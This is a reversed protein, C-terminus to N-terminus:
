SLNGTVSVSVGVALTSNGIHRMRLNKSQQIVSCYGSLIWETVPLAYLSWLFGGCQPNVKVKKSHPLLSFFFDIASISCIFWDAINLTNKRRPYSNWAHVVLTVSSMFSGLYHPFGSLLKVRLHKACERSWWKRYSFKPAQLQVMHGTQSLLSHKDSGMDAGIIMLHIMWNFHTQTPSQLDGVVLLAWPRGPPAAWFGPVEPSPRGLSQWGWFVPGRLCRWALPPLFADM